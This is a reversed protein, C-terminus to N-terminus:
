TGRKYALPVVVSVPINAKKLEKKMHDTGRGGPFAVGLEPKGEKIMRVNRIAGAAKGFKHWEAAYRESAIGRKKAWRYGLTDAGRAAGDIVCTFHYKDHLIDLAKFALKENIFDRGGFVVVRM